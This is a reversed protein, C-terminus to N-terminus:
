DVHQIPPKRIVTDIRWVDIIVSTSDIKAARHFSSPTARRCRRSFATIVFRIVHLSQYGSRQDIGSCVISIMGLRPLLQLCLFVGVTELSFRRPM